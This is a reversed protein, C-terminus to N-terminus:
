VDATAVTVQMSQGGYTDTHVRITWLGSNIANLELQEPLRKEKCALAAAAVHLLGSAAHAHGFQRTIASDNANFDVTANEKDTGPIVAYITEQQAKADSLRKLILVVAADGPIQQQPPLLNCAAARHVTECCMDVAGVVAMDVAHERLDRLGLELAVLGSTQESSVSFSPAKFDFQVNLRNTVINPMAGLTDASTLPAHIAARAQELWEQDKNPLLEALRVLLGYRAIEADCQMGICAATREPDIVKIDALAQQAAKMIALQQGLAHQLDAPPFHTDAISLELGDMYGGRLGDRYERILCDGNLWAQTFADRNAASAALIGIGVIAIDDIPLQPKTYTKQTTTTKEHQWNEVLLHANNGGFGFANIAAIKHTEQWPEATSLVRFPADILASTLNDPTYSIPPKKGAKFASLVNILAAVGSATISHGINAKLAGVALKQQTPFIHRMSNIETSDGIQTGTAHCELWSVQQPSIGSIDYAQQMARRQGDESPVLFSRSNGDNSLGVARIVGHITNNDAIADELRKLVVLGIGQAPVLGDADRHFPRSQGTKSLAQLATFGLHLFLSDTANVGGALMMKARGDHLQDCALKIAYLSSACAADLAYCSGNLGLAKAMYHLPYGSMFRHEAQWLRDSYRFHQLAADQQNALWVAEAYHSLDFTPYCLNGVISGVRQTPLTSLAYGADILAERGTYALWQCLVDQRSIDEAPVYFGEPNFVEAFGQIYGSVDTWVQDGAHKTLALLATPDVRWQASTVKALTVRQELTNQWLQVPNLAGPFMCARGIIAIPSFMM